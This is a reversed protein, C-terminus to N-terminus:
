VLFCLQGMLPLCQPCIKWRDCAGRVSIEPVRGFTLRTRKRWAQGFGCHDVVPDITNLSRLSRRGRRDHWMLSGPPLRLCVFHLARCWMIIEIVIDLTQNGEALM